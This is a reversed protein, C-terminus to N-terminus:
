RSLKRGLVFGAALATTLTSSALGGQSQPPVNAVAAGALTSPAAPYGAVVIRRRRALLVGMLFLLLALGTGALAVWLAAQWEPMDVALRLYLAILLFVLAVSLPVLALAGFVIRTRLRRMHDIEAAAITRVFDSIM